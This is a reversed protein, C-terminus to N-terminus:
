TNVDFCQELHDRFSDIRLIRRLENLVYQKIFMEYVSYRTLTQTLISKSVRSAERERKLRPLITIILSLTFPVSALAALNKDSEFMQVYEQVSEFM